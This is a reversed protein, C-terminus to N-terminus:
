VSTAQAPPDGVAVPRRRDAIWESYSGPYLRLGELGAAQAALVHHCATVGSGCYVIVEGAHTDSGWAEVFRERLRELSLFQGNELNGVFPLSQAGPIHGPIPDITENEGRFRDAARADFLLPDTSQSRLSVEDLTAVMSPQLQAQFVTAVPAALKESLTGGARLYSALGGDLVQVQRHGLYRLLWWLRAAFAGPGDDYAVVRTSPGIGWLGLQHTFRSLEPLPHRGTRGFEVAGSLERELHAYIAGPIHARDFDRQGQEPDALSFRCDIVRLTAEDPADAAGNVPARPLLGLLEKVSILPHM